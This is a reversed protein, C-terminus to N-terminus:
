NVHQDKNKTQWNLFLNCLIDISQKIASIHKAQHSIYLKSSPQYMNQKIASIHKAQHSMIKKSSPEYIRQKIALMNKAQHCMYINNASPNYNYEAQHSM